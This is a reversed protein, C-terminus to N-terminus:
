HAEARPKLIFLETVIDFSVSHTLIKPFPPPTHPCCGAACLRPSLRAVARSFIVGRAEGVPRLGPVDARVGASTLYKRPPFRWTTATFATKLIRAGGRVALVASSVSAVRPAVLPTLAHLKLHARQRTIHHSRGLLEEGRSTATIKRLSRINSTLSPYANLFPTPPVQYGARTLARVQGRWQEGFAGFGHVLLVAPADPRLPPAEGSNADAADAAADAADAVASTGSGGALCMICLM